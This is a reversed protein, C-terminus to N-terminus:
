ELPRSQDARSDSGNDRHNGLVFVPGGPVTVPGRFSGFTCGATTGGAYPEASPIDNSYVNGNRIQM